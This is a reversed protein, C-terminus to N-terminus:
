SHLVITSNKRKRDTKTAHLDPSARFCYYPDKQNPHNILIPLSPRVVPAHSVLQTVLWIRSTMPAAQDQSSTVPSSKLLLPQSNTPIQMSKYLLSAYHVYLVSVSSLKLKYNYKFVGVTVFSSTIPAVFAWQWEGRKMQRSVTGRLRSWYPRGYREWLLCKFLSFWTPM